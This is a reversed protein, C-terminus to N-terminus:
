RMTKLATYKFKEGSLTVNELKTKISWKNWSKIALANATELDKNGDDWFAWIHEKRSKVAELITLPVQQSGILKYGLSLGACGAGIIATPYSNFNSENHLSM